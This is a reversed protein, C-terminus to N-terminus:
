KCIYQMKMNLKNEPPSKHHYTHYAHYPCHGVELYKAPDPQAKGVAGSLHTNDQSGAQVKQLLALLLAADFALLCGTQHM